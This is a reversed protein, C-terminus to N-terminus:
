VAGSAPQAFCSWELANGGQHKRIYTSYSEKSLYCTTGIIQLRVQQKHGHTAMEHHARKYAFALPSWLRMLNCIFM